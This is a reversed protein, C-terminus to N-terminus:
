QVYVKVRHPREPVQSAQPCMEGAFDLAFFDDLVEAKKGCPWVSCCAWAGRANGKATSTSVSVKRQQGEDGQSTEIGASSQNGLQIGVHGM